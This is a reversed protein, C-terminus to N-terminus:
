ELDDLTVWGVFGTCEVEYWDVGALSGVRLVTASSGPFCQANGIIAGPDDKLTVPRPGPIAVADGPQYRADPAAELASAPDVDALTLQDFGIYARWENELDFFAKGAAAEIAEYVTMGSTYNDVIQAHTEIGGYNTLLWNIFSVGVDYSLAYCGDAMILDSGISTSDSMPPLVPNLGALRRLREDYNGASYTFYDAQGESWWEPGVAGGNEFQYLHAIEHPIVAYIASNLRRTETREERPVLGICNALREFWDDTPMAFSQVTVGFETSTFGAANTNTFGSGNIEGRTELTPFLVGRPKYSLEQGFGAIRRPETSAMAEAIGAAATEVGVETTGFWFVIIDPTEVRYWERTPDSYEMLVPETQATNGFTDTVRWFFRYPLWPPVGQGGEWIHAVWEGTEADYEANVRSGSNAEYRLFVTASEIGVDGVTEITTRFVVGNPYQSVATHDGITIGEASVGQGAVAITEGGVTTLAYDVNEAPYVTPTPLLPSGQRPTSALVITLSTSALVLAGIFLIGLRKM